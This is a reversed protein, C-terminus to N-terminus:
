HNSFLNEQWYDPSRRDMTFRGELILPHGRLYGKLALHAGISLDGGRYGSPYFRLNGDWDVYKKIKGSVSGYFFFSTKNVKTYKGTLSDKLEFQSYTHMDIGSGADHMNFLFRASDIPVEELLDTLTIANGTRKSMRVPQGDRMLNVMQMLVVDLDKGHLGIADLAGKMRAVHGHHDAGWVDIAKAFGRTALKNYHYAIDAAFYTPIGNARVLM